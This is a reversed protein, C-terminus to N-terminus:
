KQCLPPLIWMAYSSGPAPCVAGGRPARTAPPVSAGPVASHSRSGTHFSTAAKRPLAYSPELRPSTASPESRCHPRAHRRCVPGSGPAWFGRTNRSRPDGLGPTGPTCCLSSDQPSQRLRCRTSLLELPSVQPHASRSGQFGLSSATFGPALRKGRRTTGGVAAQALLLRLWCWDGLRTSAIALALRSDIRRYLFPHPSCCQSGTQLRSCLGCPGEM